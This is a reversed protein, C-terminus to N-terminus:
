LVDELKLNSPRSKEYNSQESELETPSRCEFDSASTSPLVPVQVLRPIDVSASWRGLHDAWVSDIGMIHVCTLQICELAHALM